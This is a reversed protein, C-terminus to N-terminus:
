VNFLNMATAKEKDMAGIYKKMTDYDKHGTFKMIITPSIGLNIAKCIFTRRATHTRVLKYKPVTQTIRKNGQFITTEVPINIGCAIAMDELADNMKQNSIVPLVKFNSTNVDKYKDLIGQAVNNLNIELRDSTKITTIYIKNNRINSKKLNEVDSYRLGTYCCFIFVDRVRDLRPNDSFDHTRVAELEDDDLYIVDKDPVELNLAFNSYAMNSNYGWESAWNLFWRLYSFRKEVTSNILNMKNLEYDAFEQLTDFNLKDFSLHKDFAQLHKKLAQFKMITGHKFERPKKRATKIVPNETAKVQQELFLDFIQFFSMKKRLEKHQEKKKIEDESLPPFHFDNIVKELWFKDIENKPTDIFAATIAAELDSLKKALKKVEAQESLKAIKSSIKIGAQKTDTKESWNEPKIFIGSKARIVMGRGGVFRILIESEGHANTKDSLSKIIKM